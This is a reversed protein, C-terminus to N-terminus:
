IGKGRVVEDLYKTYCESYVASFLNVRTVSYPHCWRCQSSVLAEPIVHTVTPIVHTASPIVHTVSPIVCIVSPIVCISSPQCLVELSSVLAVLSSVLAM